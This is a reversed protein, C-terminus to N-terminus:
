EIQGIESWAVHRRPQKVAQQHRRALQDKIELDIVWRRMQREALRSAAETHTGLTERM